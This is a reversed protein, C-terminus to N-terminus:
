FNIQQDDWEADSYSPERTISMDPSGGGGTASTDLSLVISGDDKIDIKLEDGPKIGADRLYGKSLVGNGGGMVRLKNDRARGGGAGGRGAPFKYGVADLLARSFQSAAPIENDNPGKNVWGTERCCASFGKGEKILEDVKSKLEEGELRVKPAISTAM